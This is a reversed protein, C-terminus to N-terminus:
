AGPHKHAGLRCSNRTTVLDSTAAVWVWLALTTGASFVKTISGSHYGDTSSSGCYRTNASSDDGLWCWHSSSNNLELSFQVTWLGGDTLTLTGSSYSCGSVTGVATPTATVKKDSGGGAFNQTAITWEGGVINLDDATLKQGATFAAM